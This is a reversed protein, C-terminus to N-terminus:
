ALTACTYLTYVRHPTGMELYLGAVAPSSLQKALARSMLAEQGPLRRLHECEQELTIDDSFVAVCVVLAPLRIRQSPRAHVENHLLARQPDDAPLFNHLIFDTSPNM